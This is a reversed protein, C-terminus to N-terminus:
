RQLGDKHVMKHDTGPMASDLYKSEKDRLEKLGVLNNFQEFSMMRGELGATSGTRQLEDFFDMVARAIVYTCSTAYAVVAFGMEQLESATLLPTKGGPIMNAMTPGDIEKAIRRMQDISEPADVFIMDAGAERYLNGRRIADEIGSVGMADTRATIIFDKDSRADLAAKLRVAMDQSPIVQKGSMHGCRKPEAQDELIIGAAGAKEYLQVTRMVNMIGGYGTDGDVLVPINVADAIRSACGTMETLTLLSIDPMGLMSATNAYGGVAIAKFGAKEAIKASLADHAVPMMVIEDDLILKKFQSTKKLMLMGVAWTTPSM